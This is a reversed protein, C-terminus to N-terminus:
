NGCPRPSGPLLCQRTTSIGSCAGHNRKVTACEELSKGMADSKEIRFMAAAARNFVAVKFDADFTIIGDLATDIIGSLRVAQSKSERQLQIREHGKDLTNLAFSIDVSMEAILASLNADFHGPFDAFLTIAGWAKGGRQIPASMVAAVDCGPLLYTLSATRPDSKYDNIVVLHGERIASATATTAETSSASLTLQEIPPVGAGPAAAHVRAVARDGDKVFVVAWRVGTFNVCIGCVEHLLAGEDDARVIAKNTASLAQYARGLEHTRHISIQLQEDQQGRMLLLRNFEASLEGLEADPPGPISTLKGDRVDRLARVMSQLPAVLRNALVSALALAAAGVAAILLLYRYAEDHAAAEVRAAPIGAALRLGHVPLRTSAFVREVGDVGPHTSIDDAM